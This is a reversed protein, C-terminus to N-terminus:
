LTLVTWESENKETWVFETSDHLLERLASTRVSSNPIFKGIFNIMGLVRLGGKKDTPCPMGLIARIKREDPEIGQASTIEQM